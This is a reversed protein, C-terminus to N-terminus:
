RGTCLKARQGALERRVTADKEVELRRKLWDCSDAGLIDCIARALKQRLLANAFRIPPREFMDQLKTVAIKAKHEALYQVCAQITAVDQDQRSLVMLLTSDMQEDRSAVYRSIYNYFGQYRGTQQYAHVYKDVESAPLRDRFATVDQSSERTLIKRLLRGAAPRDLELLEDAAILRVRPSTVVDLNLIGQLYAKAAEVDCRTMAKLLWKRVEADRSLERQKLRPGYIPM